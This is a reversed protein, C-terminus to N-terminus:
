PQVEGTEGDRELFEAYAGVLGEELGIRAKWGLAHLRSVDLLERPAGDPRSADFRLEGEFGVVRAILRALDAIPLDEGTGVNIHSLRPQSYEEYTAPDLHMLHVCAAAMDDVHLFERRPTGSGWVTVHGAGSQKAEHFRRILGPIVRNSQPHYCDGPGYVHAPV